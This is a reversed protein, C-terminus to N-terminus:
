TCAGNWAPWPSEKGRARRCSGQERKDKVLETGQFLGQGRVDRVVDYSDRLAGLRDALQEGLRAAREVLHEREM